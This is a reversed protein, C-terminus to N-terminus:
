IKIMKRTKTITFPAKTELEPFWVDDVTYTDSDGLDIRGLIIVSVLSSVTVELKRKETTLSKVVGKLEDNTKDGYLELANNILLDGLNLKKGEKVKKKVAAVSPLSSLGPIKVVVQISEYEDTAEVSTSGVPSFGYDRVGISSLWKAQEEGYVSSMKEFNVPPLIDKVVKLKSRIVELDRIVSALKELVDKGKKVSKRKVVPIKTLDFEVYVRDGNEEKSKIYQAVKAEFVGNFDSKKMVIPLTKINKIGDRIVTYNRTIKSPVSKLGYENEPLEVTGNLTTQISVNPRESNFVLANLSIESFPSQKFKPLENEYTAARSTRNYEWAVTNTYVSVNDFNILMSLLENVTISDSAMYGQNRGEKFRNIDGLICSKVTETFLSLEQKTFANEYMNILHVDGLEQLATLLLDDDQEVAAYYTTLYLDDVSFSKINGKLLSKTVARVNKVDEPVSACGDVVDVINVHGSETVYVVSDSKGKVPVKIVAKGVGGFADQVVNQYDQFGEAFLHLGSVSKAMEQIMKRDAYYGYEIFCVSDFVTKAESLQKMIDSKTSENDYGDTMFIMSNVNGDKLKLQSALSLPSTFCTLGIPQLYRDVSKKLLEISEISSVDINECVVGCQSKGSFYLISVTDGASTILSITNKLHTKIDSLSQYMSGSVDVVYVYNCSTKSVVTKFSSLDIVEIM